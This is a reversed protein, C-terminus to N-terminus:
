CGSRDSEGGEVMELVSVNVVCFYCVNQWAVALLHDRCVLALGLKEMFDFKFLFEM